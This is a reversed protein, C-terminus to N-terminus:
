FLGPLHLLIIRMGALIVQRTVPFPSQICVSPSFVGVPERINGFQRVSMKRSRHDTEILSPGFNGGVIDLIERGIEAQFPVGETAGEISFKFIAFEGARPTLAAPRDRKYQFSIPCISQRM